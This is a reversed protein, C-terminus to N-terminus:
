QITLIDLNAFLQIKVCIEMGFQVLLVNEVFERSYKMIDMMVLVFFEMLIAM